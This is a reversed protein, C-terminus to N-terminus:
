SALVEEVEKEAAIEYEDKPTEPKPLLRKNIRGVIAENTTTAIYTGARCMLMGATIILLLPWGTHSWWFLTIVEVRTSDSGLASTHWQNGTPFTSSGLMEYDWREKSPPSFYLWARYVGHGIGVYILLKVIVVLATIM